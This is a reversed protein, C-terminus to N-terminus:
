PAEGLAEGPAEPRAAAAAALLAPVLYWAPRDLNHAALGSVLLLGLTALTASALGAVALDWPDTSRRRRRRESWAFAVTAGLFALFPVTGAVGRTAVLQGALNHPDHPNGDVKRARYLGWNDPGVGLWPNEAFIRWSVEYGEIRGHTSPDREYTDASFIGAYRRKAAETQEGLLVVGLALVGALLAGKALARPISVVAWLAALALLVLGARSHTLVVCVAGLAGYALACARLLASRTRIGAWAVLPVALVVSAAFSNPDAYATGAGLMRRVGMKFDYKGAVYESASRLLHFGHAALLVLVLVLLERRTRVVALVLFFALVRTANETQAPWAKGPEFAWLASLFGAALFAVLWPAGPAAFSSTGGGPPAPRRDPRASRFALAARVALVALLLAGLVLRPRLAGLSKWEEDIAATGVFLYLALLWFAPSLGRLSTGGFAFFAGPRPPAAPADARPLAAREPALPSV